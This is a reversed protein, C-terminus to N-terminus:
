QRLIHPLWLLVTGPWKNCGPWMFAMVFYWKICVNSPTFFLNIFSLSPLLLCSFFALFFFLSSIFHFRLQLMLQILESWTVLVNPLMFTTRCKWLSTYIHQEKRGMLNVQLVDLICVQSLVLLCQVRLHGRVGTTVVLAYQQSKNARLSIWPSTERVVLRGMYETHLKAFILFERHM